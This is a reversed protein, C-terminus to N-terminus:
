GSGLRVKGEANSDRAAGDLSVGGCTKKACFGFSINIEM